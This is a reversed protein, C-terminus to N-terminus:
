RLPALAVFTFGLWFGCGKAEGEAGSEAVSLEDRSRLPIQQCRMSTQRAYTSHLVEKNFRDRCRPGTGPSKCNQCRQQSQQYCTKRRHKAFKLDSGAAGRHTDMESGVMGRDHEFFFRMKGAGQYWSFTGEFLVTGFCHRFSGAQVLAQWLGVPGQFPSFILFYM